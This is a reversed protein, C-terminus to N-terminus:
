SNRQTLAIIRLIHILILIFDVYLNFAFYLAMNPANVGAEAVKKINWVDFATICCVALVTLASVIICYTNWTSRKFVFIFLINFLGVMLLGFMLGFGVMGFGTANKSLFGILAMGGFACASVGFAMVLTLPDLLFGFGSILVGMCIAYLTFWVIVGKGSKLSSFAIVITLIIQAISSGILLGQYTPSRMEIGQKKFVFILGFSVATTVLMLFFMYLFSKRLLTRQGERTEVTSTSFNYTSM